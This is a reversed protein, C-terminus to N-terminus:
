LGYALRYASTMKWTFREQNCIFVSIISLTRFIDINKRFLYRPSLGGTQTRQVPLCGLFVIAHM